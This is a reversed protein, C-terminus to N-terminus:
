LGEPQIVEIWVPERVAMQQPDAAQYAYTPGTQVALPFEARLRYAFQVPHDASLGALHVVMQGGAREYRAIVGARVLDQWEDEVLELGPPLGLELVALPVVGPRNLMVAVTASITEGV